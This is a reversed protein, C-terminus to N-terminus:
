SGFVEIADRSMCVMYSHTETGRKTPHKLSFGFPVGGNQPKRNELQFSHGGSDRGVSRSRCCEPLTGSPNQSDSEGLLIAMPQGLIQLIFNRFPLHHHYESRNSQKMTAVAGWPMPKRMPFRRLHHLKPSRQAGLLKRPLTSPKSQPSIVQNLRPRPALVTDSRGRLPLFVEPMPHRETAWHKQQQQQTKKPLPEGQFEVLLFLPASGKKGHFDM